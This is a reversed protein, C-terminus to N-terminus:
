QVIGAAEIVALTTMRITRSPETSDVPNSSITAIMMAITAITMAITVSTTGSTTGAADTSRRNTIM